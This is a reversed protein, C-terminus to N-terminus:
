TSKTMAVPQEERCQFTPHWSSMLWNITVPIIAIFRTLDKVACLVRQVYITIIHSLVVCSQVLEMGGCVRVLEMGGCVRVLEVGGCVQVLEMGGCVRVLEMGSCVRVLEM